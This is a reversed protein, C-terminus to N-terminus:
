IFRGCIYIYIRKCMCSHMCARMYAYLCVCRQIGGDDVDFIIHFLQITSFLSFLPLLLLFWHFFEFLISRFIISCSNHLEYIKEAWKNHCNIHHYQTNTHGFHFCSSWNQVRWDHPWWKIMSLYLFWGFFIVFKIKSFFFFVCLTECFTCEIVRRLM